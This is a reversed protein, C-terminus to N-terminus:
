GESIKATLEPMFELIDAIVGIDAVQFIPAKPNKNIAIMFPNGKIGGLHQFSGSIGMAMYVKPKVTQGSTGVQRSKELWKADVIPRSCSVDAGMAKALENAIEINDEDEIGRGVSVLVESKTIDVDGVEAVVTELYKRKAAFDGAEGSKDVVQGGASKSEDPQFVGPRTTLVAGASIDCTVHTHAMGSYEQRVTKLNGGDIGEFDVIDAVYPVDMKISLGPGLDMGFTDHPIIVLSGKPVINLLVGRIVEANPYAVADNDVKWVEKYSSAMENCVADLDAGAGTVVATVSADPNIKQAASILELATDDAVGGKHTIYAFVQEAM